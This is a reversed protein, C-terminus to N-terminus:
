RVMGIVYPGDPSVVVREHDALLRNVTDQVDEIKIMDMKM